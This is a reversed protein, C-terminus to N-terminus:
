QGAQWVAVKTWPSWVLGISTRELGDLLVSKLCCRAPLGVQGIKEHGFRTAVQLRAVLDPVVALPVFDGADRRAQLVQVHRGLEQVLPRAFDPKEDFSTPQAPRFNVPPRPSFGRLSRRRRGTITASM